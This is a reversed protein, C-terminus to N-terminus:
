DTSLPLHTKEHNLRAVRLRKQKEQIFTSQATKECVDFSSSDIMSEMQSQANKTLGKILAAEPLNRWYKKPMESQMAKTKLRAPNFINKYYELWLTELEDHLNSPRRVGPTFQLTNLDWHACLDPTLISWRMNSFRKVFFSAKIALILHEPEYWAVFYEDSEDNVCKLQQFRVFAAMKHKDRSIMKNMTYLRAIDDDIADNLLTKDEFSLRWAVRYLLAWRLPDRFCAVNIALAIFAKPINIADKVIAKDGLDNAGQTFLSGSLEQSNWSIDAPLINRQLLARAQYRWQEFDNATICYM